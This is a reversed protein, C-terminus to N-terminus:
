SSPPENEGEGVPEDSTTIYGHHDTKNFYFFMPGEYRLIDIFHPFREVDFFIEYKNQNNVTELYSNSYSGGKVFKFVAEGSPLKLHISYLEHGPSNNSYLTVKYKKFEEIIFNAM